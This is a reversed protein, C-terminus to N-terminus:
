NRDTLRKRSRLDYRHTDPVVDSKIDEEFSPYIDPLCDVVKLRNLHVTLETQPLGVKKIKANDDSTLELVRFLGINRDMLKKPGDGLKADNRLLVLSGPSIKIPNVNKNYQEANRSLIKSRHERANKFAKSLRNMMTAVYDEDNELYSSINRSNLVESYNFSFDRGCFLFFPTHGNVTHFSSNLAAQVYPLLVDWDQSKDKQTLLALVDAITKNRIETPNSQHHHPTTFVLNIGLKKCAAAFVSGTYECGCDCLLSNMTGYSCVYDLLTKTVTETTKDPIPTLVTFGSFIDVFVSVYRNGNSTLPLTLLDCSVRDNPYSVEPFTGLKQKTKVTQKRKLCPLCSTVYSRIHSTMNRWYFTEKAKFLTKLFGFHPSAVSDHALALAAPILNRPVFLRCNFKTEKHPTFYLIDELISFDDLSSRSIHKPLKGGNLFSIIETTQSDEKQQAIINEKSFEVSFDFKMPLNKHKKRIDPIQISSLLLDCNCNRSLADPIGMIKSSGPKYYVVFDYDLLFAAWRSIRNNKTPAQFVNVLARHDTFINFKRGYIYYHFKKISSVIALAELETPPYRTEAGRLKRSFYALPFLTGNHDQCLIGAIAKTSADCILTFERDFDPHKLITDSTLISRLTNFANQEVSTWTWKNEKRLLSTLPFSIEAFKEIFNRYYGVTALFQKVEKVNTPAPYTLISKIKDPHPSIGKGSVLIGLFNVSPAAFSCKKLSIKVGGKLLISFVQKLDRLHDCFNSSHILIDDIYVLACVGLVEKLLLNMSMQFDFSGNRSGYIMKRFQFQGLSCRFTTKEKHDPHIDLNLFGCRADLKTFFKKGALKDVCEAITPIPFTRPSTLKNVGRLDLCVREKGDASKAVLLPSNWHSTSPEIVGLKLWETVQTKILEKHKEALRYQPVHSFEGPNTDIKHTVNTVHGIPADPTSFLSEYEKLLQVLQLRNKSDLHNLPLGNIQTAFSDPSTTPDNTEIDISVPKATGLIQGVKLKIDSDSTNVCSVSLFKDDDLSNLSSAIKLGVTDTEDSIMFLSNKYIGNSIPTMIPITKNIPVESTLVANCLSISNAKLTLSNAVKVYITNDPVNKVSSVVKVSEFDSGRYTRHKYLHGMLTVTRDPSFSLKGHLRNLLDNGCLLAGNYNSSPAIYFNHRIESNGIQLPITIMGEFDITSFSVTKAIKDAHRIVSIGDRVYM